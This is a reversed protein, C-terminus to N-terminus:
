VFGPFEVLAVTGFISLPLFAVAVVALSAVLAILFFLRWKFHQSKWTGFFGVLGIAGIGIWFHKLYDAPVKKILSAYKIKADSFVDIATDTYGIEVPPTDGEYIWGKELWSAKYDLIQKKKEIDNIFAVFEDNIKTWSQPIVKNGDKSPIDVFKVQGKPIIESHLKRIIRSNSNDSLRYLQDIYPIKFVQKRMTFTQKPVPYNWEYDSSKAKENSTETVESFMKEYAIGAEGGLGGTESPPTYTVTAHAGITDQETSSVMVRDVTSWTEKYRMVDRDIVGASNDAISIVTVLNEHIASEGPVPNAVILPKETRTKSFTEAPNGLDKNISFETMGDWKNDKFDRYVRIYICKWDDFGEKDIKISNILGVDLHNITMSSTDGRGTAGTYYFGGDDGSGGIVTGDAATMWMELANGTRNDGTSAEIKYTIVRQENQGEARPPGSFCSIAFLGALVLRSALLKM